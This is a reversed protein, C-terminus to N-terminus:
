ETLDPINLADGDFWQEYSIGQADLEAVIEASNSLDAGTSVAGVRVLIDKIFDDKNTAPASLYVPFTFTLTSLLLRRDEGIPYNDEYAVGTLEVTTIKTWDFVADNKQIQVIPDFVILIQELIQYRQETNSTWIGLEATALYPVPMHQRIVKVDDPLKRGRQLYTERRVNGIGKRLDPALDIGSLNASMIPLRIPKNQTFNGKIWGAVRDRNGYMIPVSILKDDEDKEDTRENKGIAVQMGAFVAMFQLMYKKFQNDYYYQKFAM